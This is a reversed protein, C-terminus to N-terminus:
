RHAALGWGCLIPRTPKDVRQRGFTRMSRILPPRASARLDCRRCLHVDPQPRASLFPHLLVMPRRSDIPGPAPRTGWVVWRLLEIYVESNIDCRRRQLFKAGAQCLKSAILRPPGAGEVFNQPTIRNQGACSRRCYRACIGKSQSRMPLVPDHSCIPLEWCHM